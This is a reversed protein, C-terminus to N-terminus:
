NILTYLIVRVTNHGDSTSEYHSRESIFVENKEKWESDRTEYMVQRQVTDMDKVYIVRREEIEEEIVAILNKDLTSYQVTM